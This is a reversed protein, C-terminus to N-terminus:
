PGLNAAKEFIPGNVIRWGDDKMGRVFKRILLSNQAKGPRRFDHDYRSRDGRLPRRRERLRFERIRLPCLTHGSKPTETVMDSPKQISFKYLIQDSM